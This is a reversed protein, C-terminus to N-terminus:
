GRAKADDHHRHCIGYADTFKMSVHCDDANAYMMSIVCGCAYVYMMSIVIM